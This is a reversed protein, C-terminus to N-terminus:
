LVFVEQAILSHFLVQILQRVFYFDKPLKKTLTLSCLRRGGGGGWVCVCM